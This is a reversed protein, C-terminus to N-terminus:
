EGGIVYRVGLRWNLRLAPYGVATQYHNNFLNDVRGLLTVRHGMDISNWLDWRVWAPTSTIAPTLGLFDSDARRGVYQGAMSWSMRWFHTTAALNAAHLPRLFLRNGAVLAPDTANPASIVKSDDYSYNGEVRLWRTVKADFSTNAGWARALDTNFFSGGFAPCNPNMDTSIFSVIDHFSNHFYTVSLRLRDNAMEQDVGAQVTTSQEPDLIPTCGAPFMEPEVIGKGYSTRLRTDGWFGQGYRLAYSAGLRPVWRTGFFGNAEVRAGAITTLRKGFNYRVEAYGAQNVRHEPGNEVEFMYGATVEGNHFLYSTQETLGARNFKTTFPGFSPSFEEDQFHSEYGTVQEQWHNGIQFNWALGASFDQLDSNQGIESGGPLLTQGPQGAGSASNRVTLRLTDTDSFKWGFNGSLTTDRFQDSPGQGNTNIYGATLSYDFPGTLGSLQAAGRGSDFTGGEGLLILQPTSTTGRHTFIQVVGTMADSGYLASAAGHMIEIKDIGDLTYNSFDVAGGPENVPTGDVLVKTYYSNGGDLFYSAIGGIPGLQSFAAGQQSSLVRLLSDEQRQELEEKSIVDVLASTTDALSPQASGTVVVTASLKALSLRADWGRSEGAALSLEEEVSEFSERTASMRYRGPALTVSYKGDAGANVEVPKASSDLPQAVVRAGAIAAGTPDTLTGHLTATTQARTASPVTLFFGFVVALFLAGLRGHRM